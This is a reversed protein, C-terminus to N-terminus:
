SMWEGAGHAKLTQHHGPDPDDEDHETLDIVCDISGRKALPLGASGELADIRDRLQLEFEAIDELRLFNKDLLSQNPPPALQSM